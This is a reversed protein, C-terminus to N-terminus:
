KGVRKERFRRDLGLNYFFRRARESLTFLERNLRILMPRRASKKGYGILSEFCDDHSVFAPQVGLCLVDNVWYRDMYIDVPLFVPNTSTLFKRAARPTLFYGMTSMPGKTYRLIRFLGFEAVEYRRHNRTKNDFLRLCEVYAPLKHLSGIFSKLRTEDFVADDELVIFNTNEQDCRTWIDFHSAFCGVQGPAMPEGKTKLRKPEDCLDRLLHHDKRGDIGWFFEFEIGAADLAQKIQAQRDESQRLTLVLVKCDPNGSFGTM